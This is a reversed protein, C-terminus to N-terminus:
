PLTCAAVEEGKLRQLDNKFAHLSLVMHGLLQRTELIVAEAKDAKDWMASSKLGAISNDLRKIDGYLRAIHADNIIESKVHSTM